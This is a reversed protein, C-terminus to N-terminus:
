VISGARAGRQLRNRVRESADVQVLQKQDKNPEKSNLIVCGYTHCDMTGCNPECLDSESAEQKM